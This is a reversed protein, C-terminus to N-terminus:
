KSLKELMKIKDVEDHYKQVLDEYFEKLEPHKHEMRHDRFNVMTKCQFGRQDIINDNNENFTVFPVKYDDSSPQNHDYARNMRVTVSAHVIRGDGLCKECPELNANGYSEKLYGSGNCQKCSKIAFDERIGISAGNVINVLKERVKEETCM